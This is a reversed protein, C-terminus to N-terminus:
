EVTAFTKSLNRPTDISNGRLTASYYALLQLAIIFTIPALHTLGGPMRIVNFREANALLGDSLVFLEGKNARIEQLNSLMREAHQNWPLCAIVSLQPNVLTIPGHKLEGAAFASAYQYAVEKFKFAGELAVPYMANRGIVFLHEKAHLEGAWRRLEKSHALVQQVKSGIQAMENQCEHVREASIYQRTQGIKLALNFLLLLQATFSKTSSVSLEAGSHTLLTFDSLKSLSSQSTNCIALCHPHGAAQAHRVSEVTDATEGSQSLAILLEKNDPHVDRYRYESAIDVITKLGALTEFWYAATMAAHYSSGSAVLTISTFGALKASLPTPMWPESLYHQALSALLSAQSEIEELMHHPLNKNQQQQLVLTEPTQRYHCRAPAHLGFRIIEGPQLAYSPNAVHQILRAHTSCIQRLGAELGLYLPKGWHVAYGHQLEKLDQCILAMEGMLYKGMQALADSLPLGQQLLPYLLHALLVNLTCHAELQYERALEQHNQCHGIACIALRHQFILPSIEGQPSSAALAWRTSDLFDLAQVPSELVFQRVQFDPAQGSALAIHNDNTGLVSFASHLAPVVNQPAILAILDPM